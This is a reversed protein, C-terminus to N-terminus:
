TYLAGRPVGTTGSTYFIILPDNEEVRVDPEDRSHNELLERHSVMGEAAGELSMFHTVNSIKPRLANVTRVLEPGVFLTDAESYNILYDLEDAQLRPNFPSAIFGGKMAAGYIDMYELCNWSLIGIVDGKQVGMAHLGNILSNVRTNYQAFTIRGSGYVFAEDDGHLIANRYMVDAYTGINYRCLDKLVFRNKM